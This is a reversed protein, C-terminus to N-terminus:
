AITGLEVNGSGDVVQGILAAPRGLHELLGVAAGPDGPDVIAIMGLGLNFVRDMEGASVNGARRIEDFIRPVAWTTRDIVADCSPPLVRALNAAIGGGTVHALARVPCERILAMVAPSYIVSPRLLEDALSHASGAWAPSDLSRDLLARRALSYGNCRLGPSALGVLVDGSCVREPGLISDHEVIGVAFGALDFGGGLGRGPHEAMEGGILACGAQRCGEAVGAVITTATAPDLQATSYYDLMFAPEAGTCVVDDVCMAVLDIGITDYRGTLRAVEAKTGVGDTSAVLVPHRWRGEPLAFLGAFGGLGALVEPGFTSRVVPGIRRVAEDGADIDVGSAAYTLTPVSPEDDGPL